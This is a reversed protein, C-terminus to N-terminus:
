KWEGVATLRDRLSGFKESSKPGVPDYHSNYSNPLIGRNRDFQLYRTECTFTEILESELRKRVFRNIGETSREFVYWGSLSSYDGSCFTVKISETFDGRLKLFEKESSPIVPTIELM